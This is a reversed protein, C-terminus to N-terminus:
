DIKKKIEWYAGKQIKYNGIQVSNENIKRKGVKGWKIVVIELYQYM